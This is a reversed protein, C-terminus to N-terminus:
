EEGRAESGRLLNMWEEFPVIEFDYGSQKLSDLLATWSFECPNCVNYISDDILTVISRDYACDAGYDRSPMSCARAIELIVTALTNVPLWSYIHPLEPLAKLTIASRIMLPLAESEKWWGTNSVMHEGVLKSQGYGLLASDLRLPEETVKVSSAGLAMSVSSCFIMVAPEPRRVSLSFEILNYLGRVHPEFFSLPLHFNVPADFPSHRRTLYFITTITENNLLEFLVYAGISGTAGILLVNKLEPLVERHPLHKGFRSYKEIWEAMVLTGNDRAASGEVYINTAASSVPIGLADRCLRLLCTETAALDLRYGGHPVADRAFLYEIREAYTRYITDRSIQSFAEAWANAEVIHPWITELFEADPLRPANPAEKARWILLGLLAKGIGVVVAEGVWLYCEYLRESRPKMWVYSRLNAFFRLYNWFPDGLPRSISEAVLGAETLSFLGGLYVGELVLRDGLSDPCPAGGYAVLKYVKLVSIGGPHHHSLFIPKPSGTSGSSYLILAIDEPNYQRPLAVPHIKAMNSASCSRIPSCKLLKQRLIDGVIARIAPTRGYIITECGVTELLAVSASSSLRSSIMMVTYGLRSLALFTVVM